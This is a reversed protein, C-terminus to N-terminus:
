FVSQWNLAYQGRTPRRAFPSSHLCSSSRGHGSDQWASHLDLRVTFAACMVAICTVACLMIVISEMRTREEVGKTTMITTILSLQTEAPKLTHVLLFLPKHFHFPIM